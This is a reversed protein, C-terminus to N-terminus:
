KAIKQYLMCLERGDCVALIKRVFPLNIAFHMSGSFVNHDQLQEQM